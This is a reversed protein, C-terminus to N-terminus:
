FPPFILNMSTNGVMLEVYFVSVPFMIREQHQM